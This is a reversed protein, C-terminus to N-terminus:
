ALIIEAFNGQDDCIMHSGAPHPASGWLSLVTILVLKRGQEFWNQTIQLPDTTHHNNGM